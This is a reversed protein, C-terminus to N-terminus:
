REETSGVQLVQQPPRARAQLQVEQRVAWLLAHRLPGAHAAGTRAQSLLPQPVPLMHLVPPQAGAPPAEHQQRVPDRVWVGRVGAAASESRVAAIPRQPDVVSIM